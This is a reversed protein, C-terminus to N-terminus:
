ASFDAQADGIQGRSAEKDHGHPSGRMASRGACEEQAHQHYRSEYRDVPKLSKNRGLLALVLRVM